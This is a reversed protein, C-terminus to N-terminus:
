AQRRLRGERVCRSRRGETLITMTGDATLRGQVAFVQGGQSGSFDGQFGHSTSSVRIAPLTAAGIRLEVGAVTMTVKMPIATQNGCFRPSQAMAAGAYAGHHEVAITAGSSAM